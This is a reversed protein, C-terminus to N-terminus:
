KVRREISPKNWKVLRCHQNQSRVNGDITPRVQVKRAANWEFLMSTARELVFCHADVIDNWVKYNITTNNGCVGFFAGLCNCRQFKSGVSNSLHHQQMGAMPESSHQSTIIHCVYEM